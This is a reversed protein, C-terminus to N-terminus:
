VLCREADHFDCCMSSFVPPSNQFQGLYSSSYFSLATVDTFFTMVRTSRPLSVPLVYQHLRVPSFFM